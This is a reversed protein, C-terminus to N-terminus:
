SPRPASSRKLNSAIKEVVASWNKGAGCRFLRVSPYWPMRDGEALYRWEPTSPVLVWAPRGLSGALHVIATQVTVVLDLACVLAATEDYDDIAEQWHQLKVGHQRALREIEEDCDTYQLSVCQVGPATLLPLLQDLAISRGASNTYHRGGRWSVGVKVGEGSQRLRDRWYAVKKEDAKLYGAHPPFDPWSKRFYMPLSGASVVWDFRPLQKLYTMDARAQDAVVIRAKPFSRRFLQELKGSCEVTFEGEMQLLDPLCSAFMIEDGLGQEHAVLVRQGALLTGDWEPYPFLRVKFTPLVQKRAEYDAWGAAFEGSMLLTLARVMLTGARGPELALARECADLAEQCRGQMQLAMARNSHASSLKPDLELAKDACALGVVTDFDERLTVYALNSHALAFDPKAAVARRFWAAAERFQERQEHLSGLGNCANAYEPRIHLSANFAREAEDYQKNDLAVVGLYFWAEAFEPKFTTALLLEDKADDLRAQKRYVIALYFHAEALDYRQAIARNFHSAAATLEGSRFMELGARYAEIAADGGDVSDDGQRQGAPAGGGGFWRRVVRFM